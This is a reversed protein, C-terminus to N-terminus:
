QIQIISARQGTRQDPRVIAFVNEHRLPEILAVGTFHSFAPIVAYSEGFYFCPFCFSQKAAVQIRIGPHIHGSFSYHAETVGSGAIDHVFHFGGIVLDIDSVTIGAKTYWDAVLIDHNGKVLKVQIDPFNDMWRLYLEMEKNADSHFLDGVVIIQKPQYYQIQLLLRQLDNKYVSQPVALGSKRFHGTKGFHLDSVILAKEEEWFITRDCSLWLQQEKIRYPFSSQM